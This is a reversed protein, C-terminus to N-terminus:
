RLPRLRACRAAGDIVRLDLQWRSGIQANRWLPYAIACTYHRGDIRTLHVRYTESRGVERECGLCNGANLGLQPWSPQQDQGSASVTRTLQWRNVLYQCYDDFIPAGQRYRTVCHIEPFEAYSGDGRDVRRTQTACDQYPIQQYNRVVRSSKIQYADGPMANCWTGSPLAQLAEIHIKREWSFGTTQVEASRHWQLMLVGVLTLALVLSIGIAWYRSWRPATGAVAARPTVPRQHSEAFTQSGGRREEHLTPAPTAGTLAAGCQACYGNAASNATGCALCLQDVGVYRHHKALVKDADAPFYRQTAAQAAGCNPCFRHTLGLLKHTGCYPCDWLM